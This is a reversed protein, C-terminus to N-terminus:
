KIVKGNKYFDQSRISGDQNWIIEVGEKIGDVFEVSSKFQGNKHWQKRFGFEKGNEFTLRQTGNNLTESNAIFSYFFILLLLRPFM